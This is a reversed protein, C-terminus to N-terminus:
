HHLKLASASYLAVIRGDTTRSVTTPHGQVKTYRSCNHPMDRPARDTFLTGRPQSSSECCCVQCDGASDLNLSAFVPSDLCSGLSSMGQLSDLIPLRWAVAVHCPVPWRLQESTPCSCVHGAATMPLARRQAEYANRYCAQVANTSGSDVSSM